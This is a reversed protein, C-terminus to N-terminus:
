MLGLLSVSSIRTVSESVTMASCITTLKRVAFHRRKAGDRESREDGAQGPEDQNDTRRNEHRHDGHKHDGEALDRLRRAIVFVNRPQRRRSLLSGVHAKCKQGDADARQDATPEAAHEQMVEAFHRM